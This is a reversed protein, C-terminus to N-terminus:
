DSLQHSVRIQFRVREGEDNLEEIPSVEIFISNDTVRVTAYDLSLYDSLDKLLDERMQTITKRM